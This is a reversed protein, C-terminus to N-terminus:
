VDPVQRHLAVFLLSQMTRLVRVLRANSDTPAHLNVCPQNGQNAQRWVRCRRERDSATANEHRALEAGLRSGDHELGDAEGRQLDIPRVFARRWPPKM